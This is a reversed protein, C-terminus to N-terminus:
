LYPIHCSKKRVIFMFGYIFWKMGNWCTWGHKLTVSTTFARKFAHNSAQLNFIQVFQVSGLFLFTLLLNVEVLTGKLSMNSHGVRSGLESNRRFIPVHVNHVGAYSHTLFFLIFLFHTMIKAAQLSDVRLTIIHNSMIQRGSLCAKEAPCAWYRFIFNGYEVHKVSSNHGVEDQMLGLINSGEIQKEPSTGGLLGLSDLNFEEFHNRMEFSNGSGEM